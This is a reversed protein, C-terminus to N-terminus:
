TGTVFVIELRANRGRTRADSPDVVPARTGAMFTEIRDPKAGGKALAAAAAKARDDGAPQPAADHVVAQVALDAHAAAVRGLAELHTAAAPALVRGHFADRLTVVVGREDRAPSMGAASLESLLVDTATTASSASTRAAHRARTLLSLCAARAGAAEDIPARGSTQEVRKDLADLKQAEDDLDHAPAGLLKAAGCLLRAQMALARSARRRAAERKADAPGSTAPARMERAIALRKALEEGDREAAKRAAELAHLEDTKRTVDSEAAALDTTALSRRAVMRARQYAALAREAHLSASIDEGAAYDARARAREADAAAIADPALKSSQATTERARDVDGLLPLPPRAGSCAAVVLASLLVLRRM